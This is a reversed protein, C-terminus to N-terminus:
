RVDTVDKDLKDMVDALGNDMRAGLAMQDRATPIFFFFNFSRFLYIVVFIALKTLLIYPISFTFM